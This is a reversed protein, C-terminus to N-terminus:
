FTYVVSHNVEINIQQLSYSSHETMGFYCFLRKDDVSRNVLLGVSISNIHIIQYNQDIQLWFLSANDNVIVTRFVM